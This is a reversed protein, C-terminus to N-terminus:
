EISRCGPGPILSFWLGSRGNEHQVGVRLVEIVGLTHRNCLPQLSSPDCSIPLPGDPMSLKCKEAFFHHAYKHAFEITARLVNAANKTFLSKVIVKGIVQLHPIRLSRSRQLESPSSRKQLIDHTTQTSWNSRDIGFM